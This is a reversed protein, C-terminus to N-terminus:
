YAHNVGVRAALAAKLRATIAMQVASLTIESGGMTESVHNGAIANIVRAGLETANSIIALNDDSLQDVLNTNESM